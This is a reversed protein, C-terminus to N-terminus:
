SVNVGTLPKGDPPPPPRVKTVAEMKNCASHTHRLPTPTAAKFIQTEDNKWTHSTLIARIEKLLVNSKQPDLLNSHCGM